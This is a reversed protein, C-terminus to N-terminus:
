RERGYFQPPDIDNINTGPDTCHILSLLKGSHMVDNEISQAEELPSARQDAPISSKKLLVPDHKLNTTDEEPFVCLHALPLGQAESNKESSVFMVSGMFDTITQSAYRISNLAESDITPKELVRQINEFMTNFTNKYATKTQYTGSDNIVWSLNALHQLLQEQLQARDPPINSFNRDEM